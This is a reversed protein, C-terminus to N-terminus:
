WAGGSLLRTLHPQLVVGMGFSVGNLLLSFLWPQKFDDEFRRYILAEAALVALEACIIWLRLGAWHRLYGLLTLFVVPPNTLLNALAVVALARGRKGLALAIALEVALTLALSIGLSKLWIM